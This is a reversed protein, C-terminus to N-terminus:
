GYRVRSRRVVMTVYLLGGLSCSAAVSIHRRGSRVNLNSLIMQEAWDSRRGTGWVGHIGGGNDELGTLLTPYYWRADQSLVAPRGRMAESRELRVRCEWFFVDLGDERRRM